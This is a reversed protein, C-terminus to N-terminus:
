SAMLNVTDITKDVNGIQHLEIREIQWLQFLPLDRGNQGASQFLFLTNEIDYFFLVDQKMM